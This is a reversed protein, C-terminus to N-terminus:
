SGDCTQRQDAGDPALALVIRPPPSGGRGMARTGRSLIPGGGPAEGGIRIVADHNPDRTSGGFVLNHHANIRGGRRCARRLNNQKSGRNTSLGRVSLSGFQSTSFSHTHRPGSWRLTVGHEGGDLRPRAVASSTSGGARRGDKVADARPTMSGHCTPVFFRSETSGLFPVLLTPTLPGKWLSSSASLGRV